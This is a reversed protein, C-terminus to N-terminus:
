IEGLAPAYSVKPKKKAGQDVEASPRKTMGFSRTAKSNRGYEGPYTRNIAEDDGDRFRTRWPSDQVVRSPPILRRENYSQPELVVEKSLKM